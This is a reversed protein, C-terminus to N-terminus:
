GQTQRVYKELLSQPIGGVDKVPEAICPESLEIEAKGCRKCCDLVVDGNRDLIQEPAGKDGNKYLDHKVPEDPQPVTFGAIETAAAIVSSQDLDNNLHRSICGAIRLKMVENEAPEGRRKCEAEIGAQYAEWAAQMEQDPYDGNGWRIVPMWGLLPHSDAWQEFDARMQDNDM